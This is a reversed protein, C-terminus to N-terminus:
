VTRQVSGQTRPRAAEFVTRNSAPTSKSLTEEVPEKHARVAVDEGIVHLVVPASAV